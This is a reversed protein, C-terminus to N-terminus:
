RIRRRVTAPILVGDPMPGAIHGDPREEHLSALRGQADCAAVEVDFAEGARSRMLEIMWRPRGVGSVPLPESPMSSVRWRTVSATPQGYDTAESQRRWRRVILGMTGSQEAALQLRRSAVMPLRVTEAIVAGLGGFRLAEEACELIAEETTCEVFIVRNLDLGAQQLGPAFLDTRSLCWIVPGKTRAAIGAAFLSSVAGAVADSGGGAIEHTCGYALGGGPIRSDIDEVGFPLRPRQRAAGGAIQDIREQLEAFIEPSVNRTM